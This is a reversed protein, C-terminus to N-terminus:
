IVVQVKNHKGHDSHAPWINAESLLDKRQHRAFLENSESISPTLSDSCKADTVAFHSSRCSSHCRARHRKKLEKACPTKSMLRKFTEAFMNSTSGGDAVGISM